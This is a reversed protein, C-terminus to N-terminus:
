FIVCASTGLWEVSALIIKFSNDRLCLHNDLKLYCVVANCEVLMLIRCFGQNEKWDGEEEKLDGIPIYLFAM